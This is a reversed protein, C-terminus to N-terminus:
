KEKGDIYTWKLSLGSGVPHRVLEKVYQKQLYVTGAYYLPAIPVEENLITEAKVLDKARAKYEKNGMSQQILQDYQKNSWNGRNFAGDSVFIDLFTMPDNYDASWGAFSIQFQGNAELELKQKFPQPDILVNFGLNTKLQEQIVIAADKRYDDYSLLRIESPLEEIELEKMGEKLLRQAEAPNYQHGDGVQKRFNKNDSNVISPPVLGYAPKSGNKLVKVLAERDIAYSIAKRIKKNSFFNNSTNFQLYHVASGSVPLFEPSKKFAEALESDLQTIDTQGTTYLNAGTNTEKVIDFNVKTLSVTHRDWYTDSKELILRQEHKWESLNFPGNYVMYEPETAYKSGYKEVIDKRQPLYLAFTTLSLFYPIPDELEVRLTKDDVAQIGVENASVKGTNYAKANRIAYFIKAYEGKTKPNLARKWAYEFDQATVPKDDSWKADRLHFTYTKKDDSIDVGTAIAPEPRNDKDLRYLGEMVNNLIDFSTVDTTVASDLSPPEAPFTMNLVQKKDLSKKKPGTAGSPGLGGCATLLLSIVTVVALVPILRKRVM